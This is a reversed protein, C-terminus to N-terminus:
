DEESRSATIVPCWRGTAIMAIIDVLYSEGTGPTHARVLHIPATPLLGRVHATLLGSIAVSRDLPQAFSFESFLDIIQDLAARAREKTPREPLPPLRLGPLLYLESRPDYGPTDLLSGDARVDRQSSAALARFRGVGSVNSCWACSNCPRTSM